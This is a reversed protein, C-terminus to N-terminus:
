NQANFFEPALLLWNNDDVVCKHMGLAETFVSARPLKCVDPGIIGAHPCNETSIKCLVQAIRNLVNEGIVQLNRAVSPSPITKIGQDRRRRFFQLRNLAEGMKVANFVLADRHNIIQALRFM